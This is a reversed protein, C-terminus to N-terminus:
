IRVRSWLSNQGTECTHIDLETLFLHESYRGMCLIYYQMVLLGSFGSLDRFLIVM